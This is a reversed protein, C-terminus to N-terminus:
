IWFVNLNPKNVIVSYINWFGACVYQGLILGIFFYRAVKYARNGGYKVTALKAFWALFVSFWLVQSWYVSGIAFGVPHLPSAWWVTQLWMLFAMVGGGGLTWLWGGIHPGTPALMRQHILRYPFSPGSVFFWNQFNLAGYRYGLWITYFVSVFLTILIAALIAWFLKRRRGPVVDSLKLSHATSAMVFTRIDAGWAYSQAMAVLGLNGLVRSGLGSIMFSSAVLPAISVAMGGQCVVRTLGFFILIAVTVFLVALYWSLGTICLWVTMVVMGVLFMWVAAPYSLIEDEDTASSGRGFAKRLVSGIHERGRWLGYGVLVIWAGMGLHALHPNPGSGYIGLDEQLSLGYMKFVGQQLLFFLGFFWISFAVDSPILFTFGLIQWSIRFQLHETGRLISFDWVLNVAPVNPYFHQLATLSGVIMPIVFGIWMAPQRMITPFSRREGVEVLERPVEAIPYALREREVWQRRVIVMASVMVLYLAIVFVSWFGVFPLWARWPLSQGAPLKEYFWKVPATQAASGNPASWDLPATWKHIFERVDLAWPANFYFPAVSNSILYGTLGMSPIASSVIMMIAITALEGASFALVPSVRGLLGNTVLVLLFLLFHAGATSFDLFLTSGRMVFCGYPDYVAIFASLVAGVLFARLSVGQGAGLASPSDEIVGAAHSSTGPLSAPPIVPSAASSGSPITRGTEASPHVSGEQRDGQEKAREQKKALREKRSKHKAM